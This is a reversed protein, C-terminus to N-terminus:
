RGVYAAPKRPFSGEVLPDVVKTREEEVTAEKKNGLPKLGASTLGARGQISEDECHGEWKKSTEEAFAKLIAERKKRELGLITSEEEEVLAPWEAQM